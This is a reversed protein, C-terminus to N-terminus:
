GDALGKKDFETFYFTVMLCNEEEIWSEYRRVPSFAQEIAQALKEELEGDRSAEYLEVRWEHRPVYLINDACVGDTDNEAYVAWPLKPATGKPFALHACPIGVSKVTAQVDKHSM